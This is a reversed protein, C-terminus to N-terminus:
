GEKKETPGGLTIQFAVSAITRNSRDQVRLIEGISWESGAGEPVVGALSCALALMRRESTSAHDEAVFRAARRWDIWAHRETGETTTSVCADVFRDQRLWFGHDVILGYAAVENWDRDASEFATALAAPSLKTGHM